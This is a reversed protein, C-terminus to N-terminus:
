GGVPFIFKVTFNVVWKSGVEDDAFNREYSGVFQMPIGGVNKLKAIKIGLPLSAWRDGEHDYIFNMESVGVAWKNPLTYNLIPQLISVNVDQKGSDNDAVTFLNQNFLGWLIKDKTATFGLAPGVAYKGSGLAHNTATPLQMVPGIGWRGWSEEVVVLDFLVLDGLGSEGSPSDTVYPLSIRAINKKGFAMFPVASRLLVTNGSEDHLNHYDGVHINQIQVSMLSATPDNAAQELSQNEAHAQAILAFFLLVVLVQYSKNM